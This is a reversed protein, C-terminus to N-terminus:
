RAVAEADGATIDHFVALVSDCLQEINYDVQSAFPQVVGAVSNCMLRFRETARGSRVAPECTAQWVKVLEVGTVERDKVYRAFSLCQDWGKPRAISGSVMAPAQGAGSAALGRSRSGGAASGGGFAVLAERPPVSHPSVTAVPPQGSVPFGQTPFQVPRPKFSQQVAEPPPLVVALPVATEGTAAQQWTASPAVLPEGHWYAQRGLAAQSLTYRVDQQQDPFMASQPDQPQQMPMTPILSTASNQQPSSDAVQSGVAAAAASAVLDERTLMEVPPEGHASAQRQESSSAGTASVRGQRASQAGSQQRLRLSGTARAAPVCLVAMLLAVWPAVRSSPM